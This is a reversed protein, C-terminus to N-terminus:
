FADIIQAAYKLILLADEADIIGDANVMAAAKADDDLEILQAAYKLVLLADEADIIGDHNVDGRKVEKVGCIACVGDEFTHEESGITEGCESCQQWHADSDYKWEYTHVHVPMAFGCVICEGNEYIHDESVIKGCDACIHWHHTNDSQWEEFIHEAYNERAGCRCEKWHHMDDSMDRDFVHEHEEPLKDILTGTELIEGCGMCVTDGTYGEAETTPEAYGQIRTGGTHNAPDKEGYSVGCVQCVAAFQCNATGGSHPTEANIENCGPNQCKQYHGTATTYYEGSFDHTSAGSEMEYRCVECIIPTTCIGDDAARKHEERDVQKCGINICSRYHGDADFEWETSWNHAEMAVFLTLGCDVCIVDTRCDGDDDPNHLIKDSIQDCGPNTCVYWHANEDFVLGEGFNHETYAEIIVYGCETCTVATTCDTDIEDPNAVHPIVSTTYNCNECKKWHGESSSETVLSHKRENQTAHCKTCVEWYKEDDAQEQWEHECEVELRPVTEGQKIIEGCGTCVEDGTYGEAEVTAEKKNQLVIGVHNEPDIEGYTLHCVECGAPTVCTATGGSHGEQRRIVECNANQCKQYHGYEDGYVPSDTYRHHATGGIAVYGCIICELGKTCDKTDTTFIHNERLSEYKCGDNTCRIIHQSVTYTYGTSLAHTMAEKLVANCTTCRFETECNGDDKGTHASKASTVTCGEHKCVQWHYTGDSTYDGFEHKTYSANVLSGCVACNWANTCDTANEPRVHTEHETEYNCGANTCAQWHSIGNTQYTGLSHSEEGPVTKQCRECVSETTCNNDDSYIHGLAPIEKEYGEREIGCVTCKYGSYGNEECAPEKITVRDSWTHAPAISQTIDEGCGNLCKRVRMGPTQNVCDPLETTEWLDYRHPIANITQVDKVAGCATCEQWAAGDAKCSAEKKKSEWDHAEGAIYDESYTEEVYGCITCINQTITGQGGCVAAEITKITDFQHGNPESGQVNTVRKYYIQECTACIYTMIERAPETCTAEYEYSQRSGLMHGIFIQQLQTNGMDDVATITVSGIVGSLDVGTFESGAATLVQEGSITKVTVQALNGGDDAITVTPPECYINGSVQKEDLTFTIVPKTMDPTDVQQVTDEAADEVIIAELAHDHDAHDHIETEAIFSDASVPAAALNSFLMIGCLLTSINKKVRRKLNM